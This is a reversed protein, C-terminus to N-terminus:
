KVIGELLARFRPQLHERLVAAVARDSLDLEIDHDTLRVTIGQHAGESEKLTVGQRLFDGTVGEVLRTIPGQSLEDPNRRLEELGIVDKPLVIELKEGDAFVLEDRARAIVTLIMKRLFAEDKMQDSVLRAIEGAFRESLTRKLTLLTDRAATEMADHAAQTDRQAQQRANEVIQGARTEADQVTKDARQRADNLLKEAEQKGAEVGQDRLRGILRDVGKAVPGADDGPTGVGQPEPQQRSDAM